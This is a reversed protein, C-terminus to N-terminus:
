QIELRYKFFMQAPAPNKVAAPTLTGDAFDSYPVFTANTWDGLTETAFVGYTVDDRGDALARLKVALKGSQNPGIDIIPTGIEAAQPDIDFAYRVGNAIGNTM